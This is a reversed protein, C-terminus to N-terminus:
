IGNLRKIEDITYDYGHEFGYERDSISPDGGFGFYGNLYKRMEEVSPLVLKPANQELEEVRRKLEAIEADKAACVSHVLKIANGIENARIRDKKNAKEIESLVQRIVKKPTTKAFAWDEQYESLRDTLLASAIKYLTASWVNGDADARSQILSEIRDIVVGQTMSPDQEYAVMENAITAREEETFKFDKEKM